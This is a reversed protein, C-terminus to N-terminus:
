FDSGQFRFDSFVIVGDGIVELCQDKKNDNFEIASSAVAWFRPAGGAPM